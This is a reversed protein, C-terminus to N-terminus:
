EYIQKENNGEKKTHKIEKRKKDYKTNLIQIVRNAFRKKNKKTKMEKM